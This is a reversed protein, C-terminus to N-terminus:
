SALWPVRNFTTAATAVEAVLAEPQVADGRADTPFISATTSTGTNAVPRNTTTLLSGSGTSVTLSVGEVADLLIGAINSELTM